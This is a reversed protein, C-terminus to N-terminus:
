VHKSIIKERVINEEWLELLIEVCEYTYIYVGHGCVAIGLREFGRTTDIHGVRVRVTSAHM